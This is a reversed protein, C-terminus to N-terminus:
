INNWFGTNNTYTESRLWPILTSILQSNNWPLHACVRVLQEMLDRETLAYLVHHWKHINWGTYDMHQVYYNVTDLDAHTLVNWPGHCGFSPTKPGLEYSFQAALVTSPFKIQHQSELYERYHDGICQDENVASPINADLAIVPDLLATLLRRSRLSFGGNGINKGQPSWPWPAGIYDYKLFEDTWLTKDCIMTDWQVFLIHDTAVHEAMGRLMFESYAHVSPFHQVPVHRAGPLIQQDSFILIDQVDMNQLANNLARGALRHYMTEQTVLTISM